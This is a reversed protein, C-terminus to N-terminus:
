GGVWAAVETALQNAAQNLAAPVTAADVAALPVRSEFRRTRVAGDAGGLAADYVIVAESRDADVGFSQLQGTLRTGPDFSFQKPDLVVRSTTAAITESLLRAVLTNPIEVWQVGKLYELRTGGSRVPVRTTSLERAITPVAVTITQGAAATRTAAAPRVQAADLTMFFDPAKGGLSCGALALTAALALSFRAM